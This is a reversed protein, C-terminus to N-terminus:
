VNRRFEVVRRVSRVDSRSSNGDDFERWASERM